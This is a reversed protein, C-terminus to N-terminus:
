KLANFQDRQVILQDIRADYRAQSFSGLKAIKSAQSYQEIAKDWNASLALLEARAALEEARNGLKANAESLLQWGIVDDPHDHSYRQLIQIAPEFKRQKILVNALNVQVVRNNPKNKQANELMTQARKPQKLELYVDSLADLYFDNNPSSQYLKELIVAAAKPQKNKLDVLAKGYQFAPQLAAPANKQHREIWDLSSASDM